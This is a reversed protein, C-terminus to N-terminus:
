MEDKPHDSRRKQDQEPGVTDLAHQQQQKEEQAGNGRNQEEAAPVPPDTISLMWYFRHEGSAGLAATLPAFTRRM